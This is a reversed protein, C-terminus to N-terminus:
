GRRSVKRKHLLVSAGYLLSAIGFISYTAWAAKGPAYDFFFHRAAHGMDPNYDDVHDIEWRGDEFVSLHHSMRPVAERYQAVVGPRAQQWGARRFHRQDITVEDPFDPRGWAGTLPTQLRVEALGLISLTM